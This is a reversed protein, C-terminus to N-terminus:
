HFDIQCGNAIFSTVLGSAVIDVRCNVFHVVSFTFLWLDVVIWPQAWFGVIEEDLGDHLCSDGATKFTLCNESTLIACALLLAGLRAWLGLAPSKLILLLQLETVTCLCCWWGRMSWAEITLLTFLISVTWLFYGLNGMGFLSVSYIKICCWKKPWQKIWKLM